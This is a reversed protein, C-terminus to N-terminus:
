VELVKEEEVLLEMNHVHTGYKFVKQFCIGYVHVLKLPFHPEVFLKM